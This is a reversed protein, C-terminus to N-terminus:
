EYPYVEFRFFHDIGEEDINIRIENLLPLALDFKTKTINFRAVYADSTRVIRGNGDELKGFLELYKVSTTTGMGSRVEEYPAQVQVYSGALGYAFGCSGQFQQGIQQVSRLTQNCFIGGESPDATPAWSGGVVRGNSVIFTARVHQAGELRIAINGGITYIPNNPDIGNPTVITDVKEDDDGCGVLGFTGAVLLLALTYATLKNFKM